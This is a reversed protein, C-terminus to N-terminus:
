KIQAKPFGYAEVVMDVWKATKSYTRFDHVSTKKGKVLKAIEGDAYISSKLPEQQDIIQQVEPSTQHELFLMAAYPHAAGKIIFEMEHLRVPVPEIIKCAISKTVDKQAARACSNYNTIQFLAIEGVSLSAMLRAEGLGWIPEQEKTKRAYNVGWEEGLGAMLSPMNLPRVNVAFKKGKLEPKLFDEWTNPVKEASILKRNYAVSAVTSAISVLTRHEPDIMRPDIALVKETAMGLLDVKMAHPPFDDYWDTAADGVDWDKVTGAKLGLLFAQFADSGTIEQIRVEKIFPYKKKFSDVIPQFNSRSMSMLVSVTGEAKANRIIEDRSSIFTFGKAEAGQKAKALSASAASVTTNSLSTLSLLAVFLCVFWFRYIKV